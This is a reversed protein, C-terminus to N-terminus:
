PRTAEAVRVNISVSGTKEGDSASLEVVYSGAAAFTARTAAANADAFTVDGPGSAKKWITNVKSGRPLGDDEVHGNLPLERGAQAPLSTVPEGLPSLVAVAPARNVCVNKPASAIDLGETARKASNLELEYLPDLIKATTTVRKGAVNVTWQLPGKFSGDVVMSCAFRHRGKLLMTPQNRDGPAPTFVNDDGPPAAVDMNNMNYYGFSLTLTGDANRVYGDYQVYVPQAPQAFAVAVCACVTAAAAGITHRRRSAPM